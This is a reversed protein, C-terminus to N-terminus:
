HQVLDRVQYIEHVQKNLIKREADNFWGWKNFYQCMSKLHMMFEKFRKASERKYIHYVKEEAYYVLKSKVNIRRCLDLDEMYMFFREDFGGVEKLIPTRIMLFCGLLFPVEMLKNFDLDALHHRRIRENFIKSGFPIRRVVMDIPNPILRCSLQFRDDPYVVKPSVLGVHMNSEMYEYLNWLIDGDFYVDPNLIIHYKSNWGSKLICQNHAKGFGLNANNFTYTLRKDTILSARIKDTPSNDSIFIHVNLSTNLFSGIAQNLIDPDNNYSVISAIIDFEEKM